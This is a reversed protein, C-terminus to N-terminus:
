KFNQFFNIIQFSKEMYVNYEKIFNTNAQNFHFNFKVLLGNFKIVNTQTIIQEIPRIDLKLRSGHFNKSAYFGFHSDEESFFSNLFRSEEKYFLLRSIRQVNKEDKLDVSYDFNIGFSTIKPHKICSILKFVFEGLNDDKHKLSNSFVVLQVPNLVIKYKETSILAEFDNFSPPVPLLNFESESILGNTIFFYKDIENPRFSGNLVLNRNLTDTEM